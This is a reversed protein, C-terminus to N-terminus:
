LYVVYQTNYVLIILYSKTAEFACFHQKGMSYYPSPPKQVFVIAESLHLYLNKYFYWNNTCNCIIKYFFIFYVLWVNQYIKIYYKINYLSCHNDPSTFIAPKSSSTKM